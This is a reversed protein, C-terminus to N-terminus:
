NASTDVGLQDAVCQQIQEESAGQQALQTCDQVQTGVFAGFALVAVTLLVGIVGLIIGTIAMGRNTALGRKARRSGIIGLVIAVLGFLGGIIFFGTLLALVGLVLAAIGLANKPAPRGDYGGQAPYGQGYQQPQQGQPQGYQQPQQGYQGDRPADHPQGQPQGYSSGYQSSDSGGVPSSGTRQERSPDSSGYPDQTSM